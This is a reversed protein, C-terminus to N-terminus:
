YGDLIMWKEGNEGYRVARESAKIDVRACLRGGCTSLKIKGGRRELDTANARLEAMESGSPTMFVALSWVVVLLGASAAACIIAWKWGVWGVADRLSKEAEQARGAAGKIANLAPVVAGALSDSAAKSVGALAETVAQNVAEQTAREILGASATGANSMAEVARRAQAITATLQAQQQELAALQVAAAHQQEQAVAMLGFLAQESM